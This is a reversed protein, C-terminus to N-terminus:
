NESEKLGIELTFICVELDQDNKEEHKTKSSCEELKPQEEEGGAPKGDNASENLKRKRASRGLQQQEDEGNNNNNNKNSEMKLQFSIHDWNKPIYASLLFLSFIYGLNVILHIVSNKM